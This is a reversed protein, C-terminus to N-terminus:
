PLVRYCYPAAGERSSKARERIVLGNKALRQLRKQATGGLVGLKEVVDNRMFQEAGFTERIRALFALDYDAQRPGSNPRAGGRKGKTKVPEPVLQSSRWAMFRAAHYEAFERAEDNM